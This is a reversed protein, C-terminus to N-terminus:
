PAARRLTLLTIEASAGLLEAPVFHGSRNFAVRGLCALYLHGALDYSLEQTTAFTRLQRLWAVATTTVAVSVTSEGLHPVIVADNSLGTALESGNVTLRFDLGRPLDTEIQTRAEPPM